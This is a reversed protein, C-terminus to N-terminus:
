RKGNQRQRPSCGGSSVLATILRRLLCLRLALLLLLRLRGSRRLLLLALGLGGLLRLLLLFLLRLLLSPTMLLLSSLRLLLPLWTLRLPRPRGAWLLHRSCCDFEVLDLLIRLPVVALAHDHAALDL